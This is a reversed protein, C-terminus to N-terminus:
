NSQTRQPKNPEPEALNPNRAQRNRAFESRLRLLGRLDEWATRLIKVRSDPDERWVVPIEAIRWGAWQARVLLETDFFWGNDEAQPLLAQAATRSIAKFGCQADSCRLGCLLRALRLYGRSIVERRWSRNTKADAMLRSGIAIDARGSAVAEVLAPFGGLDTALDVDMYMLVEAESELWAKKVAAGRGKEPIQLVRVNRLERGFREGIEQTRDTSGNNAIVIEFPFRRDTSLFQHLTPLSRALRAEENFVPIVVNVLMKNADKM